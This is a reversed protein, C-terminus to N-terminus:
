AIRVCTKGVNGGKMLDLLAWVIKDFGHHVTVLNKVKGEAHWELLQKIAEPFKAAFDGVIFGQWKLRRSLVITELRPGTEIKTLTYQSIAGCAVIRGFNNMNRVAADLTEGGVNDFYVDVGKPCAQKIAEFMNTVKKYNIVVDFGLGKVIDCKEDSGAIGVVYCGKLKAIQGVICGVGGAAGSVLVTDGSKPQGIEMLGLFATLGTGGCVGLSVDPDPHVAPNILQDSVITYEAWDVYGFVKDGKKFKASKSEVVESFSRSSVPEGVKFPATYTSVGRLKGVLYPDVSISIVKLLVQGDNLEPLERERIEFDGPVPAGNPISKLIVERTKIGM